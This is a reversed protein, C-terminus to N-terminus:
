AGIIKFAFKLEKEIRALQIHDAGLAFVVSTGAKGARGTRGARHVYAKASSPLEFNLVWEVDVFDIGTAAQDTTLLVTAEGKAFSRMAEECQFKTREHTVTVTRVGRESLYRYLHRVLNPHNVFVIARQCRHKELFRALVFDKEGDNRVKVAWHKIQSRLPDAAVVTRVVGSGLLEHILRESNIGFTAGVLILQLKPDPRSLVERLYGADRHALIPEPEDLVVLNVGKLKRKEYMDLIREPTGVIFRTSKELRSSQLRQNGTAVLAVSKISPEKYREAVRAIQMALETAPAFCVARSTPERELKQLIPLLYALTKGTGTASEVVVNKGQLIPDLAALQVQTPMSIGDKAFGALIRPTLELGALDAFSRPPSPDV